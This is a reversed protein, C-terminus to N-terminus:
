SAVTFTIGGNLRIACPMSWADDSDASRESNGIKSLFGTCVIRAPTTQASITPASIRWDRDAVDPALAMLALLTSHQTGVDEHYAEFEIMGADVWGKMWRHFIDAQNLVTIKSEGAAMEPPKLLKISTVETWSGAGVTSYELKTKYSHVKVGM